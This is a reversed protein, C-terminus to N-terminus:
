HYSSRLSTNLVFNNGHFVVSAALEDSASTLVPTLVFSTLSREFGAMLGVRM